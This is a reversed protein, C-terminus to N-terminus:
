NAETQSKLNEFYYEIIKTLMKSTSRYTMKAEQRVREILGKKVCISVTVIEENM